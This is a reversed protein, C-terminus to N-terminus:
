KRSICFWGKKRIYVITWVLITGFMLTIAFALLSTPIDTFSADATKVHLIVAIITCIIGKLPNNIAMFDLSNLGIWKVYKIIYDFLRIKGLFFSVLMSFLLTSFCGVLGRIHFIWENGFNSHGMSIPGWKNAGFQLIATLCAVISLTIAKSKQVREFLAKNIGIINGVCYFPLAMLASDLNWPLTQLYADGWLKECLMGLGALLCCITFAWTKNLKGIYFFLVEVCFLCPIFWLAVNHILFGGSGQAIFTQLLPYFIGNEVNRHTALVFCVWFLWTVISYIVYPLLLRKARNKIFVIIDTHKKNNYVLGSLFFFLPIHFSYVLAYSWGSNIIHGWIIALMGLGKSIDIYDVRDKM